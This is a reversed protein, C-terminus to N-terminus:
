DDTRSNVLDEAELVSRAPQGGAYLHLKRLSANARLAPLVRDRIFADHAGDERARGFDACRLTRLRTVSPLADFLPGLLPAVAAGGFCWHSV